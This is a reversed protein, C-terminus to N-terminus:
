WSTVDPLPTAVAHLTEKASKIIQVSGHRLCAHSAIFRMLAVQMYIHSRHVRRIKGAKLCIVSM